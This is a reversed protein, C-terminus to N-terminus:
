VTFCLSSWFGYRELWMLNLTSKHMSASNQSILRCYATTTYCYKLVFWISISRGISNWGISITRGFLNSKCGISHLHKKKVFSNIWHHISWERAMKAVARLLIQVPLLQLLFRFIFAVCHFQTSNIYVATSLSFNRLKNEERKITMVRAMKNSWETQNRLKQKVIKSCFVVNLMTMTMM